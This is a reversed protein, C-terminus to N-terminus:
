GLFKVKTMYGMVMSVLSNQCVLILYTINETWKRIRSARREQTIKHLYPDQSPDYELGVIGWLHRRTNSNWSSTGFQFLDSLWYEYFFFLFFNKHHCKVSLDQLAMIIDLSFCIAPLYSSFLCASVRSGAPPQKKCFSCCTRYDLCHCNYFVRFNICSSQNWGGRWLGM